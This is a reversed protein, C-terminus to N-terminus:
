DDVVWNWVIGGSGDAFQYIRGADSKPKGTVGTTHWQDDPPVTQPPTEGARDPPPEAALM